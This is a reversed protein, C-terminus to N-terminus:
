IANLVILACMNRLSVNSFLQLKNLFITSPLMNFYSQETINELRPKYHLTLEPGTQWIYFILM